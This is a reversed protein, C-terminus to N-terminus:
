RVTPVTGAVSTLSGIQPQIIAVTFGPAAPRVGLVFRPVIDGPAAGWVMGWELNAKVQPSWAEPAQTAGQALMDVWGNEFSCTLLELGSRGHDQAFATYLGELAWQTPWVSSPFCSEVSANGAPLRVLLAVAVAPVMDATPIGMALAFVTSHWAQHTTTAGDNYAGSASDWMAANMAARLSAAQATLLAADGDHGGLATAMEAFRLMAAYAIANVVANTPTFVFGDRATSPWDVQM